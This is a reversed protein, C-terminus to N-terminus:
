EKGFLLPDYPKQRFERKLVYDSAVSDVAACVDFFDCRFKGESCAGHILGDRTNYEPSRALDVVRATAIKLLGEFEVMREEKIFQVDSRKFETKTSTIFIGDIFCGVPVNALKALASNPSASRALQKVAWVYLMLQVSLEYMKFYEKTDWAGTTKYDGICYAGNKFKGIKDITGCVVVLLDDDEYMPIEFYKEVLPTRIVENNDNIEEVQLVEFDDNQRFWEWYNLLTTMLHNETLHRKNKRIESPQRFIDIAKPVAHAFNGNTIYMESVFKHFASGYLIDSWILNRRWGDIVIRKFALKCSSKKLASADFKIKRKTPAHETNNM